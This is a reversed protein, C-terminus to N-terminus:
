IANLWMDFMCVTNAILASRCVWALTLLTLHTYIILSSDSGQKTLVIKMQLYHKKNEMKALFGGFVVM